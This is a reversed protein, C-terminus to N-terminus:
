RPISQIIRRLTEVTALFPEWAHLSVAHSRGDESWRFILHNGAMGGFLHPPALILSGAKGSWRVNGLFVPDVRGLPVLGNAPRASGNTPHPFPVGREGGYVFVHLMHPPRNRDPHQPSEAGREVNFAPAAGDAVFSNLDAAKPVRLPCAEKLLTSSRCKRLPGSSMTMMAASAPKDQARPPRPAVVDVVFTEVLGKLEQVEIRWRGTETFLMYGPFSWAEPGAQLSAELDGRTRM